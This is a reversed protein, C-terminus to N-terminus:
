FMTSGKVLINFTLQDSKHGNKIAYFQWVNKCQGITLSSLDTIKPYFVYEPINWFTILILLYFLHVTMQPSNFKRKFLCTYERFSCSATITKSSISIFKSHHSISYTFFVRSVVSIFGYNVLEDALTESSDEDAIRAQLQRNMKDDMRLVITMQFVDCMTLKWGVEKM